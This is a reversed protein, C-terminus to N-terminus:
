ITWQQLRRSIKHYYTIVYHKHIRIILVDSCENSNL